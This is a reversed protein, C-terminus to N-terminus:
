FDEMMSFLLKGGNKEAKAITRQIKEKLKFNRESTTELEYKIYEAADGSFFRLFTSPFYVKFSFTKPRGAQQAKSLPPSTDKIRQSEYYTGVDINYIKGMIEKTGVKDNKVQGSWGDKDATSAQKKVEGSQFKLWLFQADGCPFKKKRGAPSPSQAEEVEKHWVRFSPSVRPDYTIMVKTNSPPTDPPTFPANTKQRKTEPRPQEDAAEENAAKRKGKATKGNGKAAKRSGKSANGNSKPAPITYNQNSGANTGEAGHKDTDSKAKEARTMRKGSSESTNHIIYSENIEGSIQEAGEATNLIRKTKKVTRSTRAQDLAGNMKMKKDKNSDKNNTDIPPSNAPITSDSVSTSPGAHPETPPGAPPEAIQGMASTSDPSSNSTAQTSVNSSPSLTPSLMSQFFSSFSQTFPDISKCDRRTSKATEFSWGPVGPFTSEGHENGSLWSPPSPM